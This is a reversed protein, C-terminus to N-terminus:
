AGPRGLAPGKRSSPAIAAPRAPWFPDAGADGSAPAVVAGQTCRRVWHHPAEDCRRFACGERSLRRGAQAARRRRQSWKDFIAAAHLRLRNCRVSPTSRRGITSSALFALPEEAHGNRPSRLLPREQNAACARVSNMFTPWAFSALGMGIGSRVAM